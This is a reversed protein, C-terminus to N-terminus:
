ISNTHGTHNSPVCDQFVLFNPGCPVERSKLSVGVHIYIQTQCVQGRHRLLDVRQACVTADCDGGCPGSSDVKSVLSDGQNTESGCSRATPYIQVLAVTWWKWEGEVEVECRASHGSRNDGGSRSRCLGLWGSATTSPASARSTAPSTSPLRLVTIGCKSFTRISSVRRGCRGRGSWGRRFWIGHYLVRISRWLVIIGSRTPDTRFGHLIVRDRFTIMPSAM